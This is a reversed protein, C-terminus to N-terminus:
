GGDKAMPVHFQEPPFLGSLDHIGVMGVPIGHGLPNKFLELSQFSM